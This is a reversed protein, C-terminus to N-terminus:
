RRGVLAVETSMGRRDAAAEDLITEIRKFYEEKM